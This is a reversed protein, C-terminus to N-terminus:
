GKDLDPALRAGFIRAVAQPNSPFYTHVYSALLQQQRYVAEGARKGHRRKSLTVPELPTRLQSHHFAHGRLVGEDLELSHMGLGALKQQMAAEGQLIGVMAGTDGNKDTLSDFLYLMGGCEALMPKGQHYFHRIAEHMPANGSLEAIHLEPYGGPLWLADVEPLQEDLLPSFFHLQAGMERLLRLNAEYIFAFASDRAVGIRQGALWPQVRPQPDDSFSVPEPLETIGATALIEAAIDLREDLDVIENAQVLGLHRDPLHMREDRPIGGFYRMGEPLSDRLLEAHYASGVRNALVGAFPMEPRYNRLGFALAGFTQAMSSGDILALVPVGFTCALDASSPDGDYLGMGCEIILLDAECAAQYLLHRSASEGVMWLDLTEVPQGSARQHIMPDLFDPGAKLVRVTLGQNRHYRALAATVTTKGQNSAPAAILVAPCAQTAKNM